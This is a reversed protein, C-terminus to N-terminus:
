PLVPLIWAPSPAGATPLSQVGWPDQVGRPDKPLPQAGQHFVAPDKQSIQPKEGRIRFM